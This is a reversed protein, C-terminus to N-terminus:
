EEDQRVVEGAIMRLERTMLEPVMAAQAATLDLAEMVREFMAVYTTGVETFVDLLRQSVGADLAAKSVRVLHARETQYMALITPVSAKSRIEALVPGAEDGEVRELTEARGWTLSVPDMDGIVRGLWAVHGATRRVEELLATGPDIDIPDGYTSIVRAVAKRDAATQHNRSAGLHNKCTGIGVHDTGWGAPRHCVKVSGDPNVAKQDRRRSHCHRKECGGLDAPRDRMPIVDSM